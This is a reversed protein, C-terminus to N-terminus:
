NLAQTSPIQTIGALSSHSTKSKRTVTQAYLEVVLHTSVYATPLRHRLNSERPYKKSKSTDTKESQMKTSNSLEWTNQKHKLWLLNAKKNFPASVVRDFKYIKEM